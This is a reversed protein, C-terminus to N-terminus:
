FGCAMQMCGCFWATSLVMLYFCLLDGSYCYILCSQLLPSHLLDYVTRVKKVFVQGIWQKYFLVIVLGSCMCGKYPVERADMQLLLADGVDSVVM